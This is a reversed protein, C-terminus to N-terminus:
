SQEKIVNIAAQACDFANFHKVLGDGDDWIYLRISHGVKEVLEVSELRDMFESLEALAEKAKDIHFVGTTTHLFKTGDNGGNAQIAEELAEKVKQLKDM